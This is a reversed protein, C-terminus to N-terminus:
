ARVFVGDFEYTRMKADSMVPFFGSPTFGLERMRALAELYSPSGEYLPIVSMEIQVAVTRPLLRRSGALVRLDFGQTDVKLLIRQYPLEGALDDLTAVQIHEIRAVRLSSFALTAEETPQLFSSVSSTSTVNLPLTVTEDGLALQHATWAADRTALAELDAYAEPVPEFSLLPGRYGAQRLMTGFQGRNAGVDLVCDVRYCDILRVLHVGLRWRELVPGARALGARVLRRRELSSAARALGARVVRRGGEALWEKTMAGIKCSRLELVAATAEFLKGPERSAM